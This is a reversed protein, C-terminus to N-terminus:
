ILCASKQPSLTNLGVGRVGVEVGGCVGMIIRYILVDISISVCLQLIIM